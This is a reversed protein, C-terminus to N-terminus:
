AHADLQEKIPCRTIDCEVLRTVKDGVADLRHIIGVERRIADDRREYQNPLDILLQMLRRDTETHRNELASFNTQWQESAHKRAEEAATFRTELQKNIQALLLRGMAFLLTTLAVLCAGIAWLWEATTMSLTMSM